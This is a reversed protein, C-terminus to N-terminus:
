FGLYFINLNYNTMHGIQIIIKLCYISNAKVFGLNFETVIQQEFLYLKAISFDALCLFFFDLFIIIIFYYLMLYFDVVLTHTHTHVARTYIYTHTPTTNPHIHLHTLTNILVIFGIWNYVSKFYNKQKM